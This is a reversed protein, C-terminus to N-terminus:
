CRASGASLGGSRCRRWPPLTAGAPQRARPAASSEPRVALRAFEGLLKAALGPSFPPIGQRRRTSAEVLEEADM